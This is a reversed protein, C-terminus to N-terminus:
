RLRLTENSRSTDFFDEAITASTVRGAANDEQAQGPLRLEVGPTWDVLPDYVFAELLTMLTEKGGRISELAHECSGRFVGGGEVGSLGFVSVINQTLRCPVREPIRLNKGKEFCVNYDIHIVEGSKLDILLNDLHRDGLGIIYGIVSMVAFSRTLSTTLRHWHASDASAFWVEQSLLNSPTEKRLEAHVQKMISSPWEKRDVNTIGQERLVPLLKNYFSESPKFYATPFPSDENGKKKTAADNVQQRQQWRKYFSYLTIAGEVWQILGSRPGLPVVSYHRASYDGDAGTKKSAKMLTNAIDLFQMIREDLHLDELGKFLYTYKPGDSAYVGIRKPKTKTPLITLTNDFGAVTTGSEGVGPLPVSTGKLSHLAGSIENMKLQNKKSVKQALNTQFQSLLGWVEKPKSPDAPERLKALTSNIFEGYKKSFWQEHHTEPKSSTVSAVKDLIFLMPKFVINYKEKVLNEKEEQTLDENEALKKVEDDM